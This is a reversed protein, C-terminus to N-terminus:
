VDIARCYVGVALPSAPCEEFVVKLRVCVPCCAIFPRYVYKDDTGLPLAHRIVDDRQNRYKL